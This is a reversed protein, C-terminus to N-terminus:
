ADPDLGQLADQAIVITKRGNRYEPMRAIQRLADDILAQVVDNMASGHPVSAKPYLSLQGAEYTLVVTARHIGDGPGTTQDVLRIARILM